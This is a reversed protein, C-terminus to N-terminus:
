PWSAHIGRLAGATLSGRKRHHVLGVEIGAFGGGAEDRLDSTQASLQLGAAIM